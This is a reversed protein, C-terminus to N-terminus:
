LWPEILARYLLRGPMLTFAGAIILGGFYSYAMTKRHRDIEHKRAFQVGRVLQILVWISLLHIPSFGLFPGGPMIKRIGFSSICIIAMSIVWVYGVTKHAITGKKSILQIAGFILALLACVLHVLIAPTAESFLIQSMRWDYCFTFSFGGVSM